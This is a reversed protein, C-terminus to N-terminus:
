QLVWCSSALEVKIQLADDQSLHSCACLGTSFLPFHAVNVCVLKNKIDIINRNEVNKILAHEM